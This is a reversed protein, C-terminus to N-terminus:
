SQFICGSFLDIYALIQNSSKYCCKLQSYSQHPSINQLSFLLTVQADLTLGEENCIHLIRNSMVDESLPKFRFKACRSALPEIIRYLVLITPEHIRYIIYCPFFLIFLNIFVQQYLQMHFLVKDSQLLDGHYAEICEAFSDDYWRSVCVKYLVTVIIIHTGRITIYRPMKQWRIQKM